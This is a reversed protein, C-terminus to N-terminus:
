TIPFATERIHYGMGNTIKIFHRQQYFDGSYLSAAEARERERESPSLNEMLLCIDDRGGHEHGEGRERERM